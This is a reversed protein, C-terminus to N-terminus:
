KSKRLVSSSRVSTLGEIEKSGSGRYIRVVAASTRIDARVADRTAYRKARDVDVWKNGELCSCVLFALKDLLWEDVQM